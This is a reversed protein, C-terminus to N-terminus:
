INGGLSIIANKLETITHKPDEAGTVVVGDADTLVTNVGALAPIPQAGTAQIIKNVAGPIRTYCIQVPTGAEAQERLYNKFEDVSAFNTNFIAERTYNLYVGEVGDKLEYISLSKFHSCIGEYSAVPLNFSYQRSHANEKM